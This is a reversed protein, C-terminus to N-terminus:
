DETKNTRQFRSTHCQTLKDSSKSTNCCPFTMNALGRLKSIDKVQQVLMYKASRDETINQKSVKPPISSILLNVALVEFFKIQLHPLLIPSTSKAKLMNSASSVSIPPLYGVSTVPYASYHRHRNPLERFSSFPTSITGVNLRPTRRKFVM